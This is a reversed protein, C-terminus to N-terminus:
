GGLEKLVVSLKPLPSMWLWETRICFARLVKSQIKGDLEPILGYKGDRGLAYAEVLKAQPDIGWYERVGSKEYALYKDRWDRVQSDPSVIEMLLDPAGDIYTHKIIEDRARAVFVVDPSRRQKVRALRVSPEILIHGADDREVIFRLLAALWVNLEIHPINAPSLLIVEGNVWEAGFDEDCWTEFESETMRMGPIPQGRLREAMEWIAEFDAATVPKAVGKAGRGRKGVRPKPLHVVSM